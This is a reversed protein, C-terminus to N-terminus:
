RGRAILNAQRGQVSGVARDDLFVVGQIPARRMAAAVAAGLQAYDIATGADSARGPQVTSGYWGAAKSLIAMSRGYNGSKPIFAERGRRSICGTSRTRSLRRRRFPANTPVSINVHKSSPMKMISDVLEQIAPETMGAQRLLRVLENRYLQCVRNAEKVDGTQDLVAQSAEARKKALEDV